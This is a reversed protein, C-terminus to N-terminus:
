ELCKLIVLSSVDGGNIFIIHKDNLGYVVTACDGSQFGLNYDTLISICGSEESYWDDEGNDSNDSNDSNDDITNNVKNCFEERKNHDIFEYGDTVINGVKISVSGNEYPEQGCDYFNYSTIHKSEENEFRKQESDEMKNYYDDWLYSDICKQFYNTLENNIKQLNSMHIDTNEYIIPEYLHYKDGVKKKWYNDWLSYLEPRNKKLENIVSYTSCDQCEPPKINPHKLTKEIDQKKIPELNYDLYISYQTNTKQNSFVIEIYEMKFTIFDHEIGYLKYKNTLDEVKTGQLRNNHRHINPHTDLNM